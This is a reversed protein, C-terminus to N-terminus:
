PVNESCLLYEHISQNISQGGSFLLPSFVINKKSTGHLCIQISRYLLCFTFLIDTDHKCLHRILVSGTYITCKPTHRETPIDM